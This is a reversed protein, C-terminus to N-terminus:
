EGSKNKSQSVFAGYNNMCVKAKNVSGVEYEDNNAALHIAIRTHDDSTHLKDSPSSDDDPTVRGDAANSKFVGEDAADLREVRVDFLDLIKPAATLITDCNSEDVVTM